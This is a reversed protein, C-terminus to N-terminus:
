IPRFPSCRLHPVCVPGPNGDDPDCRKTPACLRDPDCPQGLSSGRVRDAFAVALRRRAPKAQLYVEALSSERVNGLRLRRSFVCPWVESEPLHPKGELGRLHVSDAGSWRGSVAPPPMTRDGLDPEPGPRM